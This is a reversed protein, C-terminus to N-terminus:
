DIQTWRKNYIINDVTSKPLQMIKHIQSPKLGKDRMARISRVQDISLKARSNSTGPKGVSLGTKYAHITNEKATCWELNEVSNDTKIGNIHNTFPKELPNPIFAEAVLRNVKAQFPISEHCLKVVSYGLSSRTLSLPKGPRMYKSDHSGKVLRTMSRVNGLNSVQYGPVGIVSKWLEKSM